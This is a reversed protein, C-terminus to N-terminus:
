LITKRLTKIWLDFDDTLVSHGVGNFPVLEAQDKFYDKMLLAEDYPVIIDDTGHMIVVPATIKSYRSVKKGDKMMKFHVLSYDIDVLNRQKLMADLYAEYEHEKPKANQYITMDWIMRLMAKDKNAYANLIPLVQVPDSAIEGKTKLEQDFMMQGNQDKKYITFGHVGVSDLLILKEVKSGMLGALELAVGGGTSWGVVMFKSINLHKLLEEIDLALTLLSDFHSEYSSDGFGRLDPAIIQVDSEFQEMTTQWHVSSSMNGHLLLLTQEGNGSKRYAITEGNSLEQTSVPYDKM